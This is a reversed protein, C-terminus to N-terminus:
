PVKQANPDIVTADKIASLMYPCNEIPPRKCLGIDGQNWSVINTEVNALAGCKGCCAFKFPAARSM